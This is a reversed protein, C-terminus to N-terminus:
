RGRAASPSIYYAKAFDRSFASLSSYGCNAAITTISVSGNTNALFDKARMLRIKRAFDMPTYGRFKKFSRFLSRVSAGSVTALTEYDLAEDWHAEIYEEAARVQRPALTPPKTEFLRTSDRLPGDLLITIIAQEIESRLLAASPLSTTNAFSETLNLILRGHRSSLDLEPSFKLKATVPSDTLAALKRLIAGQPIRWVLQCYDPHFRFSDTAISVCATDRTVITKTKGVTTTAAGKLPIQVRLHDSESFSLEVLTGYDCLWLESATAKAMSVHSAIGSPPAHVDLLRARLQVRVANDLEDM